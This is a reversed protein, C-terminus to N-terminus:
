ASKKLDIFYHLVFLNLLFNMVGHIFATVYAICDNSFNNNGVNNQFSAVENTTDILNGYFLGLLSVCIFLFFYFVCITKIKKSLEQKIKFFLLLLYVVLIINAFSLLFILITFFLIIIM